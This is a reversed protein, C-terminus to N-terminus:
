FYGQANASYLYRKVLSLNAKMPIDPRVPIDLICDAEFPTGKLKLNYATHMLFELNVVDEINYALLTELAKKNQNAIYEKWLYIAMLGDVGELEDRSICFLKECRKLGGSYGLSHLVYRLDIHAINFRINFFSEIFPMDFTKGNYSVILNYKQIDDMFDDLNKGYVYYKIEHGDYMAITTIKDILPSLGTTEIDLYVVSHKFERFMRWHESSKLHQTFYGADKKELREKSENIKDFLLDRKGSSVPLDENSLLTDWDCIGQSWLTEEIKAGINKIHSFTNILM